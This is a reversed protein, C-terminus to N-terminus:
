FKRKRGFTCNTTFALMGGLPKVELKETCFYGLVNRAYHIMPWVYPCTSLPHHPYPSTSLSSNIPLSYLRYVNFVPKTKQGVKVPQRADRSTLRRRM